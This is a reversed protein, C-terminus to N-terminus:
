VRERCSARGIKGKQCDLTIMKDKATLNVEAEPLERVIDGIKRAPVTIGGKELIKAPILCEIGTELNTSALRLQNEKTELLIHSLIPLTTKTSVVNQVTQIGKSLNNKSCIVKM